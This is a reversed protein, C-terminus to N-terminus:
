RLRQLEEECETVFDDAAAQRESLKALESLVVARRRGVSELLSKATADLPRRVRRDIADGAHSVADSFADLRVHEARLHEEYRRLATAEERARLLTFYATERDAARAM